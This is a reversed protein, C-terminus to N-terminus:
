FDGVDCQLCILGLNRWMEVVSARDDIVFLVDFSNRIHNEFIEMKVIDDPRFDDGPRFFIKDYTVNNSKLWSLTEKEYIQRRGTVLVIQHDGRFKEIILHCWVNLHDEHIKSYFSDWDKEKLFERRRKDINALTGDIDILIAPKRM